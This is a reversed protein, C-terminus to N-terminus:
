KKKPEEPKGTSVRVKSEGEPTQTQDLGPLQTDWPGGVPPNQRDVPAGRQKQLFVEGSQRGLANDAYGTGPDLTSAPRIEFHLHALYKGGANGVTGLREGRRAIAGVPLRIADLHGYLTTVEEGDPLRHLLIATNGWGEGAWGSFVVEGDGSAFVPDGLDSDKGGIGNLDDGLHRSVLFPQANYTLAGLVSGLPAEFRAAVPARVSEIPRVAVFAPDFPLAAGDATEVPLLGVRKPPAGSQIAVIPREKPGWVFFAVVLGAAILVFLPLFERWWQKLHREVDLFPPTSRDMSRGCYSSESFLFAALGFHQRPLRDQGLYTRIM